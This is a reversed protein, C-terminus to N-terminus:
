PFSCQPGKALDEKGEAEISIINEFSFVAETIFSVVLIKSMNEGRNSAKEKKEIM